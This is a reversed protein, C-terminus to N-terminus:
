ESKCNNEEELTCLYYGKAVALNEESTYKKKDMLSFRPKDLVSTVYNEVCIQRSDFCGKYNFHNHCYISILSLVVEM